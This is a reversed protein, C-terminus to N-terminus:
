LFVRESHIVGKYFFAAHRDFDTPDDTTYFSLGSHKSCRRDIEPHNKLYVTLSEAV